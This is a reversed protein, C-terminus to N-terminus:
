FSCFPRSSSVMSFSWDATKEIKELPRKRTKQSGCANLCEQESLVRVASVCLDCLHILSQSSGGLKENPTM